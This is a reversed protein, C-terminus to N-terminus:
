DSGRDPKIELFVEEHILRYGEVKAYRRITNRQYRITRSVKAAEDIDSPLSTFGTWPVPLTWYFGVANRVMPAAGSDSGIRFIGLSKECGGAPQIRQEDFWLFRVHDLGFNIRHRGCKQRLHDFRDDRCPAHDTLFEVTWSTRATLSTRCGDIFLDLVNELESQSSKVMASPKSFFGILLFPIRSVFPYNRAQSPIPSPCVARLACLPEQPSGADSPIPESPM